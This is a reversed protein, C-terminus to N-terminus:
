PAPPTAPKLDNRGFGFAEPMWKNVNPDKDVTFSENWNELPKMGHYQGSYLHAANYRAFHEKIDDFVSEIPQEVIRNELQLANDMVAAQDEASADSEQMYQLFRYREMIENALTTKKAAEFLNALVLLASLDTADLSLSKKAAVIADDLKGSRFLVVALIKWPISSTPFEEIAEVCLQHAVVPADQSRDHVYQFMVVKYEALEDEGSLADNKHERYLQLLKEAIGYCESGKRDAQSRLATHLRRLVYFHLLTPDESFKYLERAVMTKLFATVLKTLFEREQPHKAFLSSHHLEDFSGFIVILLKAMHRQGVAMAITSLTKLIYTMTYGEGHQLLATSAGNLCMDGLLAYAIDIREHEELFNLIPPLTTKISADDAVSLELLGEIADVNWPEDRLIDWLVDEADKLLNSRRLVLSLVLRVHHCDRRTILGSDGSATDSYDALIRRLMNRADALAVQSATTDLAVQKVIRLEETVYGDYRGLGSEEELEEQQARLARQEVRRIDEKTITRMTPPRREAETEYRGGLTPKWATSPKDDLVTRGQNCTYQRLAILLAASCRPAAAGRLRMVVCQSLALM